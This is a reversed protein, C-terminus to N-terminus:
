LSKAPFHLFYLSNTDAARGKFGPKAQEQPLFFISSFMLVHLLLPARLGSEPQLRKGASFWIGACNANVTFAAWTSAM